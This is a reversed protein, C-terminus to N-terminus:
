LLIAYYGEVQINSLSFARAQLSGELLALIEAVIAWGEGALKSFARIVIDNHDRILQEILYNLFKITRM